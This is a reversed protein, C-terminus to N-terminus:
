SLSLQRLAVIASRLRTKVTGLPVQLITAAQRQSYGRFYVLKVVQRQNSTLQHMACWLERRSLSFEAEPFVKPLDSQRIADLYVGSPRRTRIFDLWCNRTIVTVWSYLSGKRSDYRQWNRWIKVCVDQFLDNVVIDDKALRRLLRFIAAAYNAYLDEFSNPNTSNM